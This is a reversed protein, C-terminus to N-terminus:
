YIFRMERWEKRVPVHGGWLAIRDTQLAALVRGAHDVRDVLHNGTGLEGVGVLVLIVEVSVEM